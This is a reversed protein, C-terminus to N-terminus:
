IDAISENNNNCSKTSQIIKELESFNKEAKKIKPTYVNRHNKINYFNKRFNNM